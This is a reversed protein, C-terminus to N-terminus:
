GKLAKLASKAAIWRDACARLEAMGENSKKCKDYAIVAARFEQQLEQKTM